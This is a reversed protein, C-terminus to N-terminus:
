IITKKIKNLSKKRKELINLSNLRNLYRIRFYLRSRLYLRKFKESIQVQNAKTLMRTLVGPKDCVYSGNVVKFIAELGMVAAEAAQDPINLGGESVKAVWSNPNFQDEESVDHKTKACVFGTFYELGNNSLSNSNTAYNHGDGKDEPKAYNHESLMSMDCYPKTEIIDCANVGVSLDIFDEETREM